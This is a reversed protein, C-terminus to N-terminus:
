LHKFLPKLSPLKVELIALTDKDLRKLFGIVDSMNRIVAHIEDGTLRTFIKTASPVAQMVYELTEPSMSKVLKAVDSHNMIIYRVFGPQLKYLGNAYQPPINPMTYWIYMLLCQRETVCNYHDNNSSSPFYSPTYSPCSPLSPDCCPCVTCTPCCPCFYEYSPCYDPVCTEESEPKADKEDMLTWGYKKLMTRGLRTDEIGKYQLMIHKLDAPDLCYFAYWINKHKLIAKKIEEPSLSKIKDKVEHYQLLLKKMKVMDLEALLEALNRIRYLVPKIYDERMMKIARFRETSNYLPYYYYYYNYYSANVLKSDNQEKNYVSAQSLRTTLLFVLLVSLCITGLKRSLVM